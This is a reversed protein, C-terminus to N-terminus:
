LTPTQHLKSLLPNPTEVAAEGHIDGAGVQEPKREQQPSSDEGEGSRERRRSMM